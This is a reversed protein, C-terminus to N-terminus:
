ILESQLIIEGLDNKIYASGRDIVAYTKECGNRPRAMSGCNIINIGNKCFIEPIHTHGSVFVDGAKIGVPLAAPDYMHGHSFWVTREDSKEKGLYATPCFGFRKLTYPDDCNGRIYSYPVTMKGFVEGFIENESYGCFDGLFAVFDPKEREVAELLSEAGYINGHIDSAFLMKM